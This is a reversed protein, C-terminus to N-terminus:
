HLTRAFTRGRLLAQAEPREAILELLAGALEGLMELKDEHGMGDLLGVDAVALREDLRVWERESALSGADQVSFGVLGPWRDFLSEVATIQRPNKM